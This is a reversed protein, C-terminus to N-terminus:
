KLAGIMLPAGIEGIRANSAKFYNKWFTKLRLARKPGLYREKKGQEGGWFYGLGMVYVTTNNGFNALMGAKKAKQMEKEPNITRVRGKHYFSTVRSNEFMDSAIFVIKKKVPNKRIHESLYQMNALIDSQPIKKSSSKLISKMAKITQRKALIMQQRHMAEFRVLKSRKLNDTFSATPEPDVQGKTVVETYRGKVSSSFRIVEISRGAKLWNVVMEMMQRMINTDFEVSEDILVFLVEQSPKLAETKGIAEYSTRPFPVKEAYVSAV